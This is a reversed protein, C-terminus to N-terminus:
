MTTHITKLKNITKELEAKNFSAGKGKKDKDNEKDDDDTGLFENIIIVFVVTLIFATFVDKTAMFFSCFIFFRRIIKNSVIKRMDDDLEDIIFRAGINLLSMTLGIFYKNENIMKGTATVYETLKDM